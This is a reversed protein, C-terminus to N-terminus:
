KITLWFILKNSSDYFKVFRDKEGILKILFTNKDIKVISNETNYQVKYDTLYGFGDRPKLYIAVTKNSSVNFNQGEETVTLIDYNLNKTSFYWEKKYNKNNITYNVDVKYRSNYELREKPFLAYQFKTFKHNPDNKENMLIISDVKKNNKYLKIDCDIDALEYKPNFEVSIPYGSVSYDALPDPDEEYFVPMIDESDEPPWVVIDPNDTYIASKANIYDDYNIKQNEDACIKTYTGGKYRGYDCLYVIKSNGMNYVYIDNKNAYGIEDISFDLFSFRHYIASMLTDIAEKKSTTQAINESVVISNYGNKIARKSVDYGMFYQNNKDDEYHSVIDKDDLYLAHNEASNQLYTNKLLPNLGAKQRLENIYDLEIITDNTEKTISTQPQDQSNTKTKKCSVIFIILLAFFLRIIM